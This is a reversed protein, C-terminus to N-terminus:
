QKAMSGFHTKIGTAREFQTAGMWHIFLKALLNKEVVLQPVEM